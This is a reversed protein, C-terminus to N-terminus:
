TIDLGDDVIHTHLIGMLIVEELFKDEDKEGIVVPFQYLHVGVLLNLEEDGPYEAVLVVRDVTEEVLLVLLVLVVFIIQYFADLFLIFL